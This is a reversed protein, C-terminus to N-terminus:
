SRGLIRTNKSEIRRRLRTSIAQVDRVDDSILADEDLILGLHAALTVALRVERAWSGGQEIAALFASTYPTTAATTPWARFKIYKM